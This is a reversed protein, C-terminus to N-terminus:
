SAMGRRVDGALARAASEWWRPPDNGEAYWGLRAAPLWGGALLAAHQEDSPQRVARTVTRPPTM